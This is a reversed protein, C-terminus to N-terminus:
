RFILLFSLILFIYPFTIAILLKKNDILNLVLRFGKVVLFMNWGFSVMLGLISPFGLFIYPGQSYALVRFIDKFDVDVGILFKITIYWLFGFVMGQFLGLLPFIFWIWLILGKFLNESIQVGMQEMIINKIRDEFFIVQILLLITISLILVWWMYLLPDWIEKSKKIKKFYGDPEKLSEKLNLFFSYFFGKGERNEWILDSM